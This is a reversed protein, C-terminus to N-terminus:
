RGGAAAQTQWLKLPHTIEVGRLSPRAHLFARRVHDQCVRLGPVDEGKGMGERLALANSNGRRWMGSRIASLAAEQCFLQLDAFSFGDMAGALERLFDESSVQEDSQIEGFGFRTLDRQTETGEEGDRARRMRARLYQFRSEANPPPVFIHYELRGPRLLASDIVHPRSSAGLLIVQLTM